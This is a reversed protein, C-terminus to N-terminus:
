LLNKHIRFRFPLMADEGAYGVGIRTGTIIQEESIPIGANDIWFIAEGPKSIGKRCLSLGSHRYHVGLLRSVNGPGTGQKIGIVDKGTRAKMIETGDVPVVSRILVAHPNGETSTVVNFLSHIGYCLYVYAIGGKRFM